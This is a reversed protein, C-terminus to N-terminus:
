INYVFSKDKIRKEEILKEITLSNLGKALGDELQKLTQILIANKNPIRTLSLPGELAEIVELLSIDRASRSLSYGGSRGRTSKVIGSKKLSSLIQELFKLPIKQAEAIEGSRLEEIAPHLALEFVAQIGYITKASIKM